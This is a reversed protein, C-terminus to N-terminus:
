AASGSPVVAVTALVQQLVEDTLYTEPAGVLLGYQREGATQVVLEVQRSPVAPKGAVVAYDWVWELRLAGAAGPVTVSTPAGVPQAGLQASRTTRLLDARVDLPGVRGTESFVAIAPPVPLKADPRTWQAAAGPMGGGAAVPAFGPPLALVLDDQRVPTWGAPVPPTSVSSSPTATASPTASPTASASAPQDGTGCAALPLLGLLAAGLVLRRGTM